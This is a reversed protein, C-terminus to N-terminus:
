RAPARSSPRTPADRVKWGRSASTWSRPRQRGAHRRHERAEPRSARRRGRARRAPGAGGAARHRPRHGRGDPRRRDRHAAHPGDLFESALLLHGEVEELSYVTAVAPDTITAAARAERKLRERLETNGALAAPLSKLAVNRHLRRDTALYVVGMGGRGIPRIIEFEGVRDGPTGWPPATRRRGRCRRSRSIRPISRAGASRPVRRAHRALAAAARGGGAAGRRQRVRRAAM